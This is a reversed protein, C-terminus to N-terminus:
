DDDTATDVGNDTSSTTTIRNKLYDFLEQLNPNVEPLVRDTPNIHRFSDGEQYMDILKELSASELMRAARLFASTLLNEMLADQPNDRLSVDNYLYRLLGVMNATGGVHNKMHNEAVREIKKLARKERAEYIRILRTTKSIEDKLKNVKERKMDAQTRNPKINTM